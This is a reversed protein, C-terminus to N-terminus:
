KKLLDVIKQSLSYFTTLKGGFVHLVRNKGIKHLDLKYERSMQTPNKKSHILPRTGIYSYDIDKLSIQKKLYKNSIKILYNIDEKNIKINDVNETELRETTGIITKGNEPIMFFIRKGDTQLFLHKDVALYPLVIHIGSVKAISYNSPLSYKKNVEDIWAGSANILINTEIKNKDIEITIKEDDMLLSEIKVDQLIEVGSNQAESAILKTLELDNTHGDFYKYVCRLENTNINPFINKFEDLPVNKHSAEFGSFFDYLTLGVKILWWPRQSKKYIPIYFEVLKVLHPYNKILYRRDHLAEKVLSFDFQELYRLGGHILRSSKSSTGCGIGGKDILLVSKGSKSIARAIASGNIGAGIIIIDYSKKIM